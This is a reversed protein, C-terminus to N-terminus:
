ATVARMDSDIHTAHGASDILEDAATYCDNAGAVVATALALLTVGHDHDTLTSRLRDIAVAQIEAAAQRTRRQQRQGNTALWTGHDDLAGMLETLGIGAASAVSVVPAEWDDTSRHALELMDALEAAVLTAGARDAKNVILVDAVELIGAKAVQISDGMGPAVLVVTTDAHTAVDVEVQGVGVTELLVVDFGCAELVKVAEPAAAALGGLRGRSAMSRIFVGPDLAHRQMRIRDGLVAGGSFPSSPDVALVAVKLDRERYAGILSDVVTSKGVGPSGTLGIIRAQGVGACAVAVARRTQVSGMEVVSVLQGIARNQGARAADLLSPIDRARQTLSTPSTSM